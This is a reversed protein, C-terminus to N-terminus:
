LWWSYTNKALFSFYCLQDRFIFYVFQRVQTTSPRIATSTVPRQNGLEMELQKSEEDSYDTTSNDTGGTVSLVGSRKIPTYFVGHPNRFIEDPKANKFDPCRLSSTPDATASSEATPYYGTTYSISGIVSPKGERLNYVIKGV